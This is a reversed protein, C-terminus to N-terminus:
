EGAGEMTMVRKYKNFVVKIEPLSDTFAEVCKPDFASGAGDIIEQVADDFSFAPKYVRVSTLADFVDAIAMIRASLPIVEGHLGEPYGKGDWREHHYAAMNRAEKLYSEGEVTGIAKEVISKGALTHTKMIEYEEETLKGAKNLIKDSINIKGVDHLPASRVIESMFKPTLKEAYYGRRKLGEAIIRVYEATKQIHDGTDSDRHEVLNAMIIILGDQMKATSDSLRRISRMQEAMNSTMRCTARFLKEIEDGTRIDLARLEKVNEDMVNQPLIEDGFRDMCESMSRIPLVDFIDTMYLAYSIILLFIGLLILATRLIFSKLVPTQYALSAEVEVVAVVNDGDGSIPTDVTARWDSLLGFETSKESEVAFATMGEFEGVGKITIREVGPMNDCIGQVMAETRDYGEVRAGKLMFQGLQAPNMSKACFLGASGANEEMYQKETDIYIGAGVLGMVLVLILPATLVALSTRTRLSMKVDRADARLRLMEEGSLPRQKWGANWIGIRTEEPIFHLLVLAIGASIGKDILNLIINVGLFAVAEVTDLAAAASATMEAIQPNQPAGLLALQILAGTIGSILAACMIFFAVNLPRPKKFIIACLTTLVAVMANVFAFYLTIGSFIACFANTIVAVLIGPFLGALVAVIMTGVTDLFLVTELKDTIFFLLINLAICLVM